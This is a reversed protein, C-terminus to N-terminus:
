LRCSLVSPLLEVLRSYSPVIRSWTVDFVDANFRNLQKKQNKHSSTNSVSKMTKSALTTRVKPTPEVYESGDLDDSPDTVRRGLGRWCRILPHAPFDQVLDDFLILTQGFFYKDIDITNLHDLDEHIELLDPNPIAM